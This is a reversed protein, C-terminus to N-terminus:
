FEINIRGFFSFRMGKSKFPTNVGIQNLDHQREFKTAYQPGVEVNLAVKNSFPVRFGGALQIYTGGGGETAVVGGIRAGIHPYIRRMYESAFYIRGEAFIPVVGQDDDFDQIYGAGLGLFITPRVMWGHSTTVGVSYGGDGFFGPAVIEVGGFGVYGEAPIKDYLNTYRKLEAAQSCLAAAIAVTMIILKKM